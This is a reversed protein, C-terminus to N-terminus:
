HIGHDRPTSVLSRVEEFIFTIPLQIVVAKFQIFSIWTVDGLSHIFKSQELRESQRSPPFVHSCPFCREGEGEGGVGERGEKTKGVKQSQGGSDVIKHEYFAPFNSVPIGFQLQQFFQM